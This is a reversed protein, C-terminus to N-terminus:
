LPLDGRPDVVSVRPGGTENWRWLALNVGGRYQVSPALVGDLREALQDVLRWTPPAGGEVLAIQKWPALPADPEAGLEGLVAGDTLDAVRAGAVDYAAFTGPRVGMEQQYEAFATEVEASLYLAPQGHRNWRGGFRAAGDGSLPASAWRPSVIRWYRGDLARAATV